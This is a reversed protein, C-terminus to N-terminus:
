FYCWVLGCDSSFVCLVMMVIKPWLSNITPKVYGKVSESNRIGVGGGRGGHGAEKRPPFLRTLHLLAEDGRYNPTVAFASVVIVTLHRTLLIPLAIANSWVREGWPFLSAM